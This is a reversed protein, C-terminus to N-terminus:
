APRSDSRADAVADEDDGVPVHAARFPEPPQEPVEAVVVARHDVELLQRPGSADPSSSISGALKTGRSRSSSVVM